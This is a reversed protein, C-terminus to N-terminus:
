GNPPRMMDCDNSLRSPNTEASNSDRCHNVSFVKIERKFGRWPRRDEDGGPPPIARKIEIAREPMTSKIRNEFFLNVINLGTIEM